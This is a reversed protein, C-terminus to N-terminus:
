GVQTHIKVEKGGGRGRVTECDGREGTEINIHTYKTMSDSKNVHTNKAAYNDQRPEGHVM